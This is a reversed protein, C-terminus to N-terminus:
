FNGNWQEAIFRRFSAGQTLHRLPPSLVNTCLRAVWLGLLFLATLQRKNAENKAGAINLAKRSGKKGAVKRHFLDLPARLPAGMGRSENFVKRGGSNPGSTTRKGQEKGLHERYQRLARLNNCGGNLNGVRM